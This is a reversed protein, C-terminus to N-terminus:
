PGSKQVQYIEISHVPRKIESKCVKLVVRPGEVESDEDQRAYNKGM